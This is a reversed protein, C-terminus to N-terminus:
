GLINNTKKLSGKCVTQLARVLSRFFVDKEVQLIEFTFCMM